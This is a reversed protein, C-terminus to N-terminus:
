PQLPLREIRRRHRVSETQVALRRASTAHKRADSLENRALHAYALDCHVGARARIFEADLRELARYLEDTAHEDGVLALVNGRWRQLHVGNLIVGPVDEDRADDGAPLLNTARDLTRLATAFDGQLAAIEASAACLWALTRGSARGGALQQAEELLEAALDLRGMDVLVYAQEGMAHALLAPTGSEIAASRATAYHTWARQIAGVDLAQWGALTATASLVAAVPRRARPMVSHALADSLTRLHSEIQDVLSPAGIRRDLSRLLESQSALVSVLGVDISEANAIRQALGEYEDAVVKAPSAQGFLEDDTKGFISRLLRRYDASVKRRDNEWESVYVKLTAPTATAGATAELRRALEHVLRAQSWGRDLRAQRLGNPM